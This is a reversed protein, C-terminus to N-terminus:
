SLMEQKQYRLTIAKQISKTVTDQDVLLHVKMIPYLFFLNASISQLGGKVALKDTEVNLQVLLPLVHFPITEDQHSCFHTIITHMNM